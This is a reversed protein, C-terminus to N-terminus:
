NTNGLHDATLAVGCANRRCVATGWGVCPPSLRQACDGLVTDLGRCDSRDRYLREARAPRTLSSVLRNAPHDHDWRETDGDDRVLLGPSAQRMSIVFPEAKGNPPVSDIAFSRQGLRSLKARLDERLRRLDGTATRQMPRM